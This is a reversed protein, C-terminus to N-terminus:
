IIDDEKTEKQFFSSDRLHMMKQHAESHFLYLQHGFIPRISKDEWAEEVSFSYAEPLTPLRLGEGCDEIMREACRSFFVDEFFIWDWSCASETLPILSENEQLAALMFPVHRFSCGGNGINTSCVNRSAPWPAGIYVFSKYLQPDFSRYISVDFQFILVHEFGREYINEWLCRSLMLTNYESKSRCHMGDDCGVEQLSLVSCRQQMDDTLSERYFARADDDDIVLYFPVSEPTLSLFPTIWQVFSASDDFVNRSDLLLALTDNAKTSSPLKPICMM